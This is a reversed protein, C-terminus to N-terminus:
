AAGRRRMRKTGPGVACDRRGHDNRNFAACNNQEDLESVTSSVDACAVLYYTGSAIPPVKVTVQGNSVAAPALPGTSRTTSLRKAGTGRAPTPSLYYAVASSAAGASGQNRTSDGALFSQGVDLSAPPNIVADVVLDPGTVAVTAASARCNNRDDSEPM